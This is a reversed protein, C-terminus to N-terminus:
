KLIYVCSIVHYILPKYSIISTYIHYWSHICIYIYYLVISYQYIYIHVIPIYQLRCGIINPHTQVHPTGHHLMLIAIKIPIHNLAGQQKPVWKKEIEECLPWPRLYIDVMQPIKLSKTGWLHFEMFNPYVLLWFANMPNGVLVSISEFLRALLLLSVYLLKL